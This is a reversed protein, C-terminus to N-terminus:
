ERSLGRVWQRPHQNPGLAPRSPPPFDVLPIWDGSRGARLSGSYRSCQVSGDYNHMLLGFLAYLITVVRLTFGSHFGHRQRSPLTLIANLPTLTRNHVLNSQGVAPSPQLSKHFRHHFNQNLLICKKVMQPTVHEVWTSPRPKIQFSAHVRWRPREAHRYYCLTRRQEM